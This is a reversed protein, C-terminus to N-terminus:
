PRLAQYIRSMRASQYWRSSKAAFRIPGNNNYIGVRPVSYRGISEPGIPLSFANSYGAERAARAVTENWRGRPYALYDVPGGVIDELIGKSETLDDICEDFPLTTLDRHFLSHSGITIGESVLSEVQPRSLTELRFPPPSDVWNVDMGRDLTAAVVFVTATFGHNKLVPLAVEFNDAFGDDFTLSSTRPPLHGSSGVLELAKDLDVVTHRKALRGCQRAFSERRVALPHDWSDCVSHYCLLPM